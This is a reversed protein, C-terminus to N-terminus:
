QGETQIPTIDKTATTDGGLATYLSVQNSYLTRKAQVFAQESALLDRQADLVELYPTAGNEYRLQALHSRRKQIALIHTQMELQQTLWKQNTLASSVERFANQITKEYNAIAQNRRITAIDLNAQNKGATFIPLTIQPVFGWTTSDSKFLGSLEASATGAYGTLTINPFFAARAAGINATASRLIHEASVIDPRNTLLRSPLGPELAQFPLMDDFYRTETKLNIPKGVLFTLNQLQIDRLQELQINLAKAQTLLTEVQTLDLESIAGIEYRRKFIRYSEQRTEITKDTLALRQDLERLSLYGNVVQAILAIQFSKQTSEQSLYNELAAEELSQVRGWFDIEWVSLNAVLQYKTSDLNTGTVNLDYPTLSRSVNASAAIHPFRNAHQIGYMAQYEQVRLTALKLDRNEQLTDAILNQLAPDTFYERWSSNAIEETLIVKHNDQPQQAYSDPIPAEPTEYEPALSTCGSLLVVVSTCLVQVTTNSRFSKKFFRSFM